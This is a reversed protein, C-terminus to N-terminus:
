EGPRGLLEAVLASRAIQTQGADGLMDRVTVTDSALEDEGIILAVPANSRNAVKMQSRMNRGDYARGTAIGASRLEDALATAADSGTVDIIFVDPALDPGPFTEEADCAM